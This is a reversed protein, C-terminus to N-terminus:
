LRPTRIHPSQPGPVTSGSDTQVGIVNAASRDIWESQLQQEVRAEHAATEDDPREFLRSLWRFM